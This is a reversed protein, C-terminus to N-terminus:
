SPLRIELTLPLILVDGSLRHRKPIVNRLIREYDRQLQDRVLAHQRQQRELEEQKEEISRDLRDFVEAQDFLLGQLRQGKLIQIERQLRDMTTNTILESVEAQRSRYRTEEEQKSQALVVSLRERIQETTALRHRGIWDQLPRKVDDAIDRATDADEPAATGV